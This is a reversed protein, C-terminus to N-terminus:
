ASRSFRRYAWSGVAGGPFAGVAAWLAAFLVDTVAAGAFVIRAVAFLAALIALVCAVAKWREPLLWGLVLAVVFAAGVMGPLSLLFSM